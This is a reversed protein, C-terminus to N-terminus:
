FALLDFKEVMEGHITRSTKRAYKFLFDGFTIVHLDLVLKNYPGIGQRLQKGVDAPLLANRGLKNLSRDQNVKDRIKRRPIFGIRSAATFSTGSKVASV